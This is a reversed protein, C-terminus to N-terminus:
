IEEWPLFPEPMLVEQLLATPITLLREVHRPEKGECNVLHPFESILEGTHILCHPFLDIRFSHGTLIHFWSRSSCTIPSKQHNIQSQNLKPIQYRQLFNDM